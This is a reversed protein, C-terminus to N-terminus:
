VAAQEVGMVKLTEMGTLMEFQYAQAAAQTQLNASMFERQRRWTLLVIAVSQLGGLIM